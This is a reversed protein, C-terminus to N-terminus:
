GENRGAKRGRPEGSIGAGEWPDRKGRELARKRDGSKRAGPSLDYVPDNGKRRRRGVSPVPAGHYLRISRQLSRLSKFAHCVRDDSWGAAYLDRKGKWLPFTAWRGANGTEPVAPWAGPLNECRETCTRSGKGVSGKGKGSRKEQQLIGPLSKEM